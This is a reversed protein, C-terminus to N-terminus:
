ICIYVFMGKGRWTVIHKKLAICVIIHMRGDGLMLGGTPGCSINIVLCFKHLPM